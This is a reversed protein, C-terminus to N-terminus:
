EPRTLPELPQGEGARAPKFATLVKRIEYRHGVAWTPSFGSEYDLTLTKSSVSAITNQKYLWGSDTNGGPLDLNIIAYLTGDSM